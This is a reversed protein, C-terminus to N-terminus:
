PLVVNSALIGGVFVMYNTSTSSAMNTVTGSWAAVKGNVTWMTSGYTKRLVLDMGNSPIVPWASSNFINTDWTVSYSQPEVYLGILGAKASVLPTSSIHVNGTCLLYQESGNAVSLYNTGSTSMTYVPADVYNLNTMGLNVFTNTVVLNGNVTMGNNTMNGTVTLNGGRFALTKTALGASYFAVDDNATQTANAVVRLQNTDRAGVISIDRSSVDGLGGIYFNNTGNLSSAIAYHVGSTAAIGNTLWQTVQLATNTTNQAGQTPPQWNSNIRVMTNFGNTTQILQGAGILDIGFRSGNAQAVTSNAANWPRIALAGNVTTQRVGAGATSAYLESGQVQGPATITTGSVAGSSAVAGGASIAGSTRLTTSTIANAVTLNTNVYVHRPNIILDSLVANSTLMTGAYFQIPQGATCTGILLRKGVNM